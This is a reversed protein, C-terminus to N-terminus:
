RGTRFSTWLSVIIDGVAGPELVFGGAVIVMAAIVLLGALDRRALAPLAALGAVGFLLWKGWSAIEEGVNRGIESTALANDVAILSLAIAAIVAAILWPTSSRSGTRSQQM